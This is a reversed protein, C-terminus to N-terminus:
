LGRFPRKQSIATVDEPEEAMCRKGAFLSPLNIVPVAVATTNRVVVVDDSDAEMLPSGVQVMSAYITGNGAAGGGKSIAALPSKSFTTGPSRRFGVGNFSQAQRLPTPVALSRGFPSATNISLHHNPIPSPQQQNVGFGESGGIKLNPNAAYSATFQRSNRASLCSRFVKLFSDYENNSVLISHDLAHLMIRRVSALKASVSDFQTTESPNNFAHRLWKRWITMSTQGDRLQCEVVMLACLYLSIPDRRLETVQSEMEPDLFTRPTSPFLIRRILILSHLLFHTGFPDVPVSFASAVLVSIRRLIIIDSESMQHRAIPFSNNNNTSAPPLPIEDGFLSGSLVSARHPDTDIKLQLHNATFAAAAAPDVAQLKDLTAKVHSKKVSLDLLIQKSSHQYHTLRQKDMYSTASKKNALQQNYNRVLTQYRQHLQIQESWMASLTSRLQFATDISTPDIPKSIPNLQNTTANSHQSLPSTSALNFPNNARTNGGISGASSLSNSPSSANSINFHSLSPVSSVSSTSAPLQLSAPPAFSPQSALRLSRLLLDMVVSIRGEMTVRNQEASGAGPVAPSAIASSHNAITRMPPPLVHESLPHFNLHHHNPPLQHPHTTPPQQPLPLTQLQTTAPQTSDM